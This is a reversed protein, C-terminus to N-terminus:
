ANIRGNKYEANKDLFTNMDNKLIRLDEIGNTVWAYMQNRKSAKSRQLASRYYPDYVINTNMKENYQSILKDISLFNNMVWRISIKKFETFEIKINKSFESVSFNIDDVLSKGVCQFIRYLHQSTMEKYNGNKEGVQSRPKWTQKVGKSHHIWEGSIVKPHDVHM